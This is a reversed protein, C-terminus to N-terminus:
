LRDLLEELDVSDEDESIVTERRGETFVLKTQVTLDTGSLSIRTQIQVSDKLLKVFADISRELIEQRTPM